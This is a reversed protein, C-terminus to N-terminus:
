ATAPERARCCKPAEPGRPRCVTVVPSGVLTLSREHWLWEELYSDPL